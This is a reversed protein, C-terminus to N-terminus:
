ASLVEVGLLALVQDADAPHDGREAALAQIAREARRVVSRREDAFADDYPFQAQCLNGRVGALAAAARDGGADLDARWRPLDIDWAAPDLVLVAGSRRLTAADLSLEQRLRYVVTNLRRRGAHMDLEPWLTDVAREVHVPTPHSLVLTLLLKAAMDRLEIPRGAVSVELTPALVRVTVASRDTTRRRPHDTDAATGDPRRLDILPETSPESGLRPAAAEGWRREAPTWRTPDPLRDRAWAVLRDAAGDSGARRHDAALRLATAGALRVLGTAELEDLLAITAVVPPEDGDLLALRIALLQGRTAMVPSVPPWDLGAAGFRRAADAGHDACLNAAQLLTQALLQPHTRALWDLAGALTDVSAGSAGTAMVEVAARGFAAFASFVRHGGRHEDLDEVAAAAVDIEGAAVAVLVALQDLLPVWISGEQDGLNARIDEVVALQERVDEWTAIAVLAASLGRTLAAEATFDCRLFDAIAADRLEQHQAVSAPSPAVISVAAAMRRLRGRVYLVPTPAFADDPMEALAGVALPVAGLDADLLAREGLMAVVWWRLLPEDPAEAVVRAELDRLQACGLSAMRAGADARVVEGILPETAALEEGLNTAHGLHGSALSRM